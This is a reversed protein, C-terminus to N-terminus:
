WFSLFFSGLRFLFRRRENSVQHSENKKRLSDLQEASNRASCGASETIGHFPSFYNRQAGVTLSSQRLYCLFSLRNGFFPVCFVFFIMGAHPPLPPPQAGPSFLLSISSFFIVFSFLLLLFIYRIIRVRPLWEFFCQNILLLTLISALLKPLHPGNM